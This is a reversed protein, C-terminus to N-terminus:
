RGDLRELVRRARTSLEPRSVPEPPDPVPRPRVKQVRVQGAM